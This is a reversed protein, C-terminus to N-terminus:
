GVVEWPNIVTLGVIGEFDKVNRTALPLAQARAIAAIQADETSIIRGSRTRTAVIDAYERASYEDFVLTQGAFNGALIKEAANALTDRRRGTPLLAIGLLIEAHTIATICFTRDKQRVFWALVEPAPQARMLESLVNTDLLIPSM